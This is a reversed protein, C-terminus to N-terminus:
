GRVISQPMQGIYEACYNYQRRADELIQKEVAEANANLMNYPIDAGCKGCKYDMYTITLLGDHCVPCVISLDAIYYFKYTKSWQWRWEWRQGQYLGKTFDKVFPPLPIRDQKHKRRQIVGRVILAFMVIALALWINIQLGFVLNLTEELSKGKSLWSWLLSGVFGSATIIATAIVKSWVPDHWIDKLWQKM